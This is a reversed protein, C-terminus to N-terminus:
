MYCRVANEPNPKNPMKSAGIPFLLYSFFFKKFCKEIQLYDSLDRASTMHDPM